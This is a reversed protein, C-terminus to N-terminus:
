RAPRTGHRAGPVGARWGPPVPPLIRRQFPLFGVSVALGFIVHSLVAMGVPVARAMASLGLVPLVVHYMGLWVVLGWFAGFVVTAPRSLGYAIVGFLIGWAISVGFHTALGLLVPGLDFGPEFARQGIFPVAAGKFGPWLDQGRMATMILGLISSVMGGIIGAVAGGKLGQRWRGEDGEEFKTHAM